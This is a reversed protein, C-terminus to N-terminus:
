KPLTMVDASGTLILRRDKRDQDVLKKIALFLEPVRQIEDIVLHKDQGQLFGMPDAQAAALTAPDDMTVSQGGFAGSELLQQCLTSKGVQRAGNILIVPTDELAEIISDLIFRQYMIALNFFILSFRLNHPYIQVM